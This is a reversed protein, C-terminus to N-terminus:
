IIIIYKILEIFLLIILIFPKVPKINNLYIIYL